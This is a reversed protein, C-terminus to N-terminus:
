GFTEGNWGWLRGEAETFELYVRAKAIGLGDALRSCLDESMEVARAPPLQGVNKVAAFCCPDSTGGFTMALDPVLSTMVWQESKQFHRALARSLGWLLAHQAEPAPRPASTFIQILPM